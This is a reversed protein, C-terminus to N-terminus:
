IRNYHTFRIVKFSIYVNRGTLLLPWHDISFTDLDNRQRLMVHGCKVSSCNLLNRIKHWSVANWPKVTLRHLEGSLFNSWKLPKFKTNEHKGSKHRIPNSLFFQFSRLHPDFYCYCFYVFHPSHPWLNLCHLRLVAPSLSIRERNFTLYYIFFHLTGSSM